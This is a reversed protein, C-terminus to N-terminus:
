PTDFIVVFKISYIDALESANTGEERLIIYSIGVNELIGTRDQLTGTGLLFTVRVRKGIQTRLYGQIYNTDQQIPSGPAMEFSTPTQTIHPTQSPTHNQRVEITETPSTTKSMEIEPMVEPTMPMTRFYNPYNSIM